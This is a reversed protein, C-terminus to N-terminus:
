QGDGTTTPQGHEDVLVRFSVRDIRLAKACQGESLEGNAYLQLVFALARRGLDNVVRSGCTRYTGAHGAPGYKARRTEWARKRSEM